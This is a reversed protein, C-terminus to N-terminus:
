SPSNLIGRTNAWPLGIKWELQSPFSPIARSPSLVVNVRSGDALRTDVIPQAENVSRNSSGAITQIIDGLRQESDFKKDWEHLQGDREYFIHSTGNVLIETVEPDDVLEQLIDLKRFSNFVQAALRERQQLTLLHERSYVCTQSRILAMLEDDSLDERLDMSEYVKRRIRVWDESM